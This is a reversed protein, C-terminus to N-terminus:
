PKPPETAPPAAKAREAAEEAMAAADNAEQLSDMFDNFQTRYKDLFYRVFPVKRLGKIFLAGLQKPHTCAAGLLPGAVWAVAANNLLEIPIEVQM